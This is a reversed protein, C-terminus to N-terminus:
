AQYMKFTNDASGSLILNDMSWDVCLVKDEHGLMDYMSSKPNRIDWLKATNDYSGTVLQNQNSKSWAVSSVWASHSSLSIKVLNGENSRPDYIRVLSDNSGSSILGNLKSYDISLFIKNSSKLMKTEQGTFLDWLRISHDWSATCATKDDMWKCSSVNESHGSLTIIPTKVRSPVDSKKKKTIVSEELEDEENLNWLKIMKDWSTSIFKSKDDNIDICEVSETHGVCKVSKTLVNKSLNWVLISQDHSSSLIKSENIWAVSKVPGTHGPLSVILEGTKNWIQVSTDYCGILILDNLGKISSVWDDLIVSDIPEPAPNRETYEIEIISEIKIDPLTQILDDLTTLLYNGNIYFDFDITSFDTELDNDDSKLIGILLANLNQSTSSSSISYPNDAISYKKNKTFFKVMLQQQSQETHYGNM